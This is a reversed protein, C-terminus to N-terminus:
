RTAYRVVRPVDQEDPTVVRGDPAAAVIAANVFHCPRDDRRECREVVPTLPLRPMAAYAGRPDVTRDCGTVGAVLRL